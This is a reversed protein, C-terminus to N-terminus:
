KRGEPVQYFELQIGDPDRFYLFSYGALDGNSEDLEIPPHNVPPALRGTARTNGRNISARNVGARASRSPGPHPDRRGASRLVHSRGVV